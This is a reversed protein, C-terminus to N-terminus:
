VQIPAILEHKLSWMIMAEPNPTKTTDEDSPLIYDSANLPRCSSVIERLEIVLPLIEFFTKIEPDWGADRQMFNLSFKTDDKLNQDTQLYHAIRNELETAENALENGAIYVFDIPQILLNQLTVIEELTATADTPDPYTVVVRVNAPDGIRNWAM